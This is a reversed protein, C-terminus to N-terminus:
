RSRASLVPLIIRSPTKQSHLIKQHSITMNSRTPGEGTNTNRDYLPFNSGSIEVRLRHSRDLRAGVHGLDIDLLYVRGPELLSHKSPGERFSGRLVGVALDQAFGSPQVDILKVVWDADRTDSFSYIEARIPGAFTLPTTLVASTYKLVDERDPGADQNVPGWVVSNTARPVSPVPNAPDAQFMDPHEEGIPATRSLAGSGGRTNARGVSHLYFPTFAASSPPWTQASRWRNDGMSFYRVPAFPKSAKGKLFRDFWLLNEQALDLQAENGVDLDGVKSKGITGHDWPGLILQQNKRNNRLRQFSSVVERCFFDYYGVVHQAPISLKEIDRTLDLRKWYGDPRNHALIGSLWPIDWGIAQDMRSVPLHLWTTSWDPPPTM